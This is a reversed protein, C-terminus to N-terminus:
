GKGGLSRLLEKLREGWTLPLDQVQECFPGGVLLDGPLQHDREGSGFFVDGTDQALESCRIPRLGNHSCARERQKLERNSVERGTHVSSADEEPLITALLIGDAGRRAAGREQSLIRM